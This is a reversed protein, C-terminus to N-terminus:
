AVAPQLRRPPVGRRAALEQLEHEQPLRLHRRVQLTVDPVVGNEGLVNALRLDGLDALVLASCGGCPCRTKHNKQPSEAGLLVAPCHSGAQRVDSLDALVLTCNGSKTRNATRPM